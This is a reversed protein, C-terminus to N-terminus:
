ALVNNKCYECNPGLEINHKECIKKASLYIEKFYEFNEPIENEMLSGKSPGFPSLIPSVGLKALKEIGRYLTEKPELGVVLMSRVSGPEEWIEIANKLASFYKEISIFGKGPMIKKALKRDFLEINFAIETIGHKKLERLKRKDNIPLTMLYIPKNCKASIYKAIALIREYDSNSNSTAGGILFHRFDVNSIYSDIVEYVDDLNFTENTKSLNCFKCEIGKDKFVCVSQYNIGVRDLALLGIKRYPIGNKTLNKMIPQKMQLHVLSVYYDYYYLVFRDNQDLDLSFPTLGMGKFEQPLCMVTVNNFITINLGNNISDCVGGSSNIKNKANDTIYLGCCILAIKVDIPSSIDFNSFGIINNSVYVKNDPSISCIRNEFIFKYLYSSTQISLSDSYGDLVIKCVSKDKKARNLMFSIISKNKFNYSYAYNSLNIDFNNINTRARKLTFADICMEQISPLNCNTLEMNILYTSAQFRENVEMFYVDRGDSIYDIGCIGRYGLKQLLKCIAMNSNDVQTKIKDSLLKYTAFDAGKYALKNNKEKIIQVSSPFVVIDEDYIIINTNIPVSNKVYPSISYQFDDHIGQNLDNDKNLVFTSNGGESFEAQVVFDSVKKNFSDHIYQYNVKTGNLEIHPLIKCAHSEEVLNRMSIKNRVKELLDSPNLCITRSVIQEGYYYATHPNYFMFRARPDSEIIKTIQDNFFEGIEPTDTNYNIRTKYIQSYSINNNGSGNLTITKEFLQESFEVESENLGIWYLNNM